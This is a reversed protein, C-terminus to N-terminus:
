LETAKFEQKLLEDAYKYSLEACYSYDKNNPLLFKESALIGQMAACAAYFRKSMGEEYFDRGDSASISGAFAPEQGLKRKVITEVPELMSNSWWWGDTDKLQYRSAADNISDVVFINGKYPEMEQRFLCGDYEKEITLTKKVRVKDGVEYKM